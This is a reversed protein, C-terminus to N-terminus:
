EYETIVNEINKCYKKFYRVKLAHLETEHNYKNEEIILTNGKSDKAVPHKLLSLLEQASLPTKIHESFIFQQNHKPTDIFHYKKFINKASLIAEDQASIFGENDVLAIKPVSFAHQALQMCGIRKGKLKGAKKNGLASIADFIRNLIRELGSEENKRSARSFPLEIKKIGKLQNFKENTLNPLRSHCQVSYKKINYTNYDANDRKYSLFVNAKLESANTHQPYERNEQTKINKLVVLPTKLYFDWRQFILKNGLIKVKANFFISIDHLFESFSMNPLGVEQSERGIRTGAENKAAIYTLTKFEGDFLDTELYLGLHAACKELIKKVRIGRYYRPKQFLLDIISSLIKVITAVKLVLAVVDAAIKAASIAQSSGIFHGADLINKTLKVGSEIAENLLILLMVLLSAAKAYNPVENIVYNVNQFDEFNLVKQTILLSLNLADARQKFNIKQDLIPATIEDPYKKFHASSANLCAENDKFIQIQSFKDQIELPIGEFIRGQKIWLDIIKADEGVLQLENQLLDVNPLFIYKGDQTYNGASFDFTFTSKNLPNIKRGDLM